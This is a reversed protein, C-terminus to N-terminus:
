RASCSTPRSGHRGRHARRVKPLTRRHGGHFGRVRRVLEVQRADGFKASGPLLTQKWRCVWKESRTWHWGHADRRFSCEDQWLLATSAASEGFRDRVRENWRGKFRTRLIPYLKDKLICEFIIYNTTLRTQAEEDAIPNTSDAAPPGLPPTDGGSQEAGGRLRLVLHLTAEKAVGCERLTQGSELQKGSFILRQQDVPVGEREEVLRHFADVDDNLMADLAITKGTLTKVFIQM